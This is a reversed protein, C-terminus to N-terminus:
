VPLFMQMASQGCSYSCILTCSNRLDPGKWSAVTKSSRIFTAADVVDITASEPSVADDSMALSLMLMHTSFTGEPALTEANVKVIQENLSTHGEPRAIFYVADQGQSLLRKRLSLM